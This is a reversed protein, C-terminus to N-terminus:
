GHQKEFERMVGILHEVSSLPLANYMSARFGGISRHGKVNSCGAAACADLFPQTHADNVPFFTANMISRSVEDTVHARFLPNRDVEAYFAKAKEANQQEMVAVGGQEKIWRMTLMSVYIPYVPPTNFMSGKAIHTRYDLMTPMARQVTGVLDKRVAVLTTGAPGMNKQAGAYIIGYKDVDIPRSFIESSMDAVYPADTEPWEHIQTGFITNNSTLHLYKMGSPVTYDKPIHDYKTDKSSAVVNVKGFLKAEKIAKDSWTGTDLYAATEGEALTNMPVMFFQSSAGGTLYMVEFDDGLGLLEPALALAEDMVAIFDKSRHSIELISLGKDNFNLVAQAAEKLVSDPLVAPGSSFNHMKM